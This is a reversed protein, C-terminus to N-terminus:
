FNRLARVLFPAPGAAQRALVFQSDPKCECIGSLGPSTLLAAFIEGASGGTTRLGLHQLM